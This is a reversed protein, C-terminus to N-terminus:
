VILGVTQMWRMRSPHMVKDILEYGVTGWFRERIEAYRYTSVCFLAPNSLFRDWHICEPRSALLKGAWDAPNSSLRDWNVSDLNAMVIECAAPNQSLHAWDARDLHAAIYRVAAPCTNQCFTSVCIRDPHALVVASECPNASLGRWDPFLQPHDRFVAASAPNASLSVLNVLEPHKRLHQVAAPNGSMVWWCILDPACRCLLKSAWESPNRSLNVWNIMYWNAILLPKVRPNPNLSLQAYDINEPHELLWDVARPNASLPGLGVKDPIDVITRWVAYPCEPYM